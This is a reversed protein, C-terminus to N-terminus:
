SIPKFKQSNTSSLIENPLSGMISSNEPMM